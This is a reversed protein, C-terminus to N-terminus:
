NNFYEYKSFYLHSAIYVYAVSFNFKTISRIIILKVFNYKEFTFVCLNINKLYRANACKTVDVFKPRMYFDFSGLISIVKTIELVKLFFVVVFWNFTLVM